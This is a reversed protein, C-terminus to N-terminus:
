CVKVFETEFPYKKAKEKADELKESHLFERHRPYGGLITVDPRGRGKTLTANILFTEGTANLEWCDKWIAFEHEFSPGNDFQYSNKKPRINWEFEKLQQNVLTILQRQATM